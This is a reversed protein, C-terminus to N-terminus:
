HSTDTLCVRETLLNPPQKYCSTISIYSFPDDDFHENRVLQLNNLYTNSM